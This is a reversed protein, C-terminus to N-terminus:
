DKIIAFNYYIDEEDCFTFDERGRHRVVMWFILDRKRTYTMLWTLASNYNPATFLITDKYVVIFKMINLAGKQIYYIM